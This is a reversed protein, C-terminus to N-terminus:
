GAPDSDSRTLTVEVTAVGNFGSPVLGTLLPWDYNERRGRREEEARGWREMLGHRDFVKGSDIRLNVFVRRFRNWSHIKKEGLVCHLCSLCENALGGFM